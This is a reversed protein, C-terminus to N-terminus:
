CGITRETKNAIPLFRCLHCLIAAVLPLTTDVRDDQLNFQQRLHDYPAGMSERRSATGARKEVLIHYPVPVLLLLDDDIM